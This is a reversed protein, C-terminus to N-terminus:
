GVVRTRDPLPESLDCVVFRFGGVGNVVQVQDVFQILEVTATFSM